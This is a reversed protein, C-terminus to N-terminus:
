HKEAWAVWRRVCEDVRRLADKTAEFEFWERHEKGCEACPGLGKLRHDGLEIHILREVRHVHPVKRGPEQSSHGPSPSSSSSPSYPYYRILTLNYSCQRTWENMRRHVNSTRGIKLRITGPSSGSGRTGAYHTQAARLADSTRRSQGNKNPSPLLDSAIDAPPPGTSNTSPTVWFIYIYGDEDAESIPKALETLLLATTQPPLHPPIWALLPQTQSPQPSSAHGKEPTTAVPKSAPLDDDDLTRFCCFISKTKGAHSTQARSKSNGTRGNKHDDQRSKEKGQRENLDLVGLREVLTDISTRNQIPRNGARGKEQAKGAFQEAQDQHQWCYLAAADTGAAADGKGTKSPTPQTSAAVPRRCPRGNTTVGRCTAPDRSESQARISEPTNGIFPM